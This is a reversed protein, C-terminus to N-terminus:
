AVPEELSKNSSARVIYIGFTFVILTFGVVLEYVCLIESISRVPHLDGYGVTTITVASFYIGQVINKIEENFMGNSLIFFAIGFNITVEAYSKMLLRLRQLPTLETRGRSTKLRDYSDSYFALFVENIRSM